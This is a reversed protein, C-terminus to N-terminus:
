EIESFNVSESLIKMEYAQVNHSVIISLPFGVVGWMGLGFVRLAAIM